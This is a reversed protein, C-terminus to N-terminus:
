LTKDFTFFSGTKLFNNTYVYNEKSISLNNVKNAPPLFDIIEFLLSKNDTQYIM